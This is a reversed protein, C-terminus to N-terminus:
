EGAATGQGAFSTIVFVDTITAPDAAPTVDARSSLGDDALSVADIRGVILSEPYTGSLGSTLVLEGRSAASDRPLFAVEFMRRSLLTLDSGTVGIERSTSLRVGVNVSPDLLTTVTCWTAGVKTVTGVLCSDRTVVPDGAAVGDLTGKDLSLTSSWADTGRSIVSASAFTMDENAEQLHILERLQDNERKVAEYDVLKGTLEANEQTLKDIQEQLDSSSRFSAGIGNFFNGISSSVSRVPTVLIGVFGDVTGAEGGRILSAIMVGLLVVAACVLGKFGRSRFFGSM